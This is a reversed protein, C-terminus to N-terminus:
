VSVGLPFSDSIGKVRNILNFLRNCLCSGEKPLSLASMSPKEIRFQVLSCNENHFLEYGQFSECFSKLCLFYDDQIIIITSAALVSSLLM